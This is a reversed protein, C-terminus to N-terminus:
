GWRAYVHAGGPMCMPGVQCVCPGWRAYVHAHARLQEEEDEKDELLRNSSAVASARSPSTLPQSIPENSTMEEFPHSIQNLIPPVAVRERGYNNSAVGMGEVYQM